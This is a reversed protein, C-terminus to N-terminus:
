MAALRLCRKNLSNIYSAGAKIYLFFISELPPELLLVIQDIQLYIYLLTFEIINYTYYGM